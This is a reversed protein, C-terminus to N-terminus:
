LPSFRYGRGRETLIFRPTEPIPEIKQRLSWVYWKVSQPNAEAMPGWIAAYIQEALLIQGARQALFLLMNYEIPTLAIEQDRV